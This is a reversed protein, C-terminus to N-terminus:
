DYCLRRCIGSSCQITDEISAQNVNVGEKNVTLQWTIEDTSPNYTGEKEISPDPQNFNVNIVIPDAVGPITFTIPNPNNNGIESEDFFSDIYFYGSVNSHTSPYDTFTFTVLGSTDVHMDAVKEGSSDNIPENIDAVIKIEKPLQMTYYDGENVEETNPISWTYNVHIESSKDINDGLENGDVDKISAGTIFHFTDTIDKPSVETEVEDAKAVNLSTFSALIQFLFIITM